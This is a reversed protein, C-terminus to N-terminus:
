SCLVVDGSLLTHVRNQPNRVLLCGAENLGIVEGQLSEGKEEFRVQEGIFNSKEKFESVIAAAGNNELKQVADLINKLVNKLVELRDWTEGSETKLSSAIKQVEPSFDKSSSNVNIGVGLIIYGATHYESLLGACKKRNLYIDNPWKIMPVLNKTTFTRQIGLGAAVNYLPAQEPKLKLPIIISFYLNSHPPSEWVRNKQGYGATQSNAVVLVFGSPKQEALQKARTQTSDIQQHYEATEFGLMKVLIDLKEQSLHM